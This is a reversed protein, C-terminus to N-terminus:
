KKLDLAVYLSQQGRRILMLAGDKGSLAKTAAEYDARGKIPKREIELIIDGPEIGAGEAASDPAVETVVVGATSDLEFRKALEPSVEQVKLGILDSKPPVVAKAEEEEKLEDVHVQVDMVKGKRIIKMPVRSGPTVAAVIAPLDHFDNVKKGNFETIVDGRQVGAKAAPSDKLVDAVLAGQADPVGFSEALTPDLKQISV